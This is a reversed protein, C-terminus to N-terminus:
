QSHTWMVFGENMLLFPRIDRISLTNAPMYIACPGNFMTWVSYGNQALTSLLTDGPWDDCFYVYPAYPPLTLVDRFEIRLSDSLGQECVLQAWAEDMLRHFLHLASPTCTDIMTRGDEASYVSGDM